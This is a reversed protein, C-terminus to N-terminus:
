NDDLRFLRRAAVLMSEDGDHSAESLVSSPAHTFKNTIARAMEEIVQDAEMGRALKARAKELESETIANSAERLQRITPVANLSDIWRMFEVVHVDIIKEAERAAQQRSAMNEEVVGKLDDVTYLFVDDLNNVEPEIDRPVAIDVMFMPRHKRQKLAHEVAGKGLIPLPSATSSIVIDADALRTPLESLTIAQAGFERALLEARELTRNAVIMQKVHQENLHRACLEITEGAGVLLVTQESLDTFIQKALSVAAFAVSVASAGISTDTRVQKAVTFTHQFLKNLLKGTSGEKHARAFADKMQGLIQPEGLVLSDLGAAVRFAHEVAKSDPHRYLYPEIDESKFNHYRCFWDIIEKDQRNNIRCYLETRNCTSVITAEAAVGSATIDRLAESLKDPAFAAQERIAVPATKHNIGFALLQM